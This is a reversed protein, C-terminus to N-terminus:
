LLRNFCSCTVSAELRALSNADVGYDTLVNLLISPTAALTFEVFEEKNSEESEFCKHRKMEVEPPTDPIVVLLDKRSRGKRSASM